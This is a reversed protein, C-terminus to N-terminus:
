ISQGSGRFATLNSLALDALSSKLSSGSKGGLVTKMTKTKIREGRVFLKLQELDSGVLYILLLAM